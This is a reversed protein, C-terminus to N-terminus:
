ISRIWEIAADIKKAHENYENLLQKRTKGSGLCENMQAETMNQFAKEARCLDDGRYISLAEIIIAKHTNM